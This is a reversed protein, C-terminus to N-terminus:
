IAHHPSLCIIVFLLLFGDICVFIACQEVPFATTLQKWFCIHTHSSWLFFLTTAFKAYRNYYSKTERMGMRMCECATSFPTATLVSKIQLLASFESQISHGKTCRVCYLFCRTSIHNKRWVSCMKKASHSTLSSIINENLLIWEFYCVTCQIYLLCLFVTFSHPACLVVFFFM